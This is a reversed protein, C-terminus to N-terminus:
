SSVKAVLADLEGIIIPKCLYGAVNLGKIRAETEADLQDASVIIVKLDQNFKRIAELAQIGDMEPMKKDLLMIQPSNARTIDIAQKGSNAILVDYGRRSFHSEMLECIQAEDDVMLLKIRNEM